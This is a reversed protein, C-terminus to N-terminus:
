TRDTYIRELIEEQRQSMSGSGEVQDRLSETFDKEWKTLGKHPGTAEIEDFWQTWRDQQEASARMEGDGDDARAEM